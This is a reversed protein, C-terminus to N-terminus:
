AKEKPGMKVVYRVGTESVRWVSKGNCTRLHRFVNNKQMIANCRDCMEWKVKRAKKALEQQKKTAKKGHMLGIHRKLNDSRMKKECWRCVVKRHKGSPGSDYKAQRYQANISKKSKM